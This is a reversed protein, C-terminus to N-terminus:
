RSREPCRGYPDTESCWVGPRPRPFRRSPISLFRYHSITSPLTSKGTLGPVVIAGPKIHILKYSSYRNTLDAPPFSGHVPIKFQNIPEHSMGRAGTDIIFDGHVAMCEVKSNGHDVTYIQQTGPPSCLIHPSALPSSHFNRLYFLLTVSLALSAALIFGRTASTTPRPNLVPPLSSSGKQKGPSAKASTAPSPQRQRLESDSMPSSSPPTTTPDPHGRHHM